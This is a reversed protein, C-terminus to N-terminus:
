CFTMRVKLLGAATKTTHVYSRKNGDPILPKIYKQAKDKMTLLKQKRVTRYPFGPCEKTYNAPYHVKYLDM